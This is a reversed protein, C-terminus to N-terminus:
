LWFHIILIIVLGVCVVYTALRMNRICENLNKDIEEEISM